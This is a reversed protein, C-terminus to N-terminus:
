ENDETEERTFGKYIAYTGYSGYLLKGTTTQIGPVLGAKMIFIGPVKVLEKALISNTINGSKNMSKYVARHFPSLSKEWAQRGAVKKTPDVYKMAKAMFAKTSPMKVISRVMSNVVLGGGKHIGKAIVGGAPILSIYDFAEDGFEPGFMFEAADGIIPTNKIMDYFGKEEESIDATEVAIKNYEEIPTVGYTETMIRNITNLDDVKTESNSKAVVDVM